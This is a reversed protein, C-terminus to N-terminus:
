PKTTILTVPLRYYNITATAREVYKLDEDSEVILVLVAGKGTHMSYYMAQMVGEYWKDAFDLEVASTLTLCDVRTADPLLYESEGVTPLCWRDQYWRETHLRAADVFTSFTLLTAATILATLIRAM